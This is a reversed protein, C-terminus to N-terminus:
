GIWSCCICQSLDLTNVMQEKSWQIILIKFSVKVGVYGLPGIGASYCLSSCDIRHDDESSKDIHYDIFDCWLSSWETGFVVTAFFYGMGATYPLNAYFGDDLDRCRIWM